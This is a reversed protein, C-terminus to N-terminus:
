QLKFCAKKDAISFFHPLKPMVQPIKLVPRILNDLYVFIVGALHNLVIVDNHKVYGDSPCLDSRMGVGSFQGISIFDPNNESDARNALTAPILWIITAGCIWEVLDLTQPQSM